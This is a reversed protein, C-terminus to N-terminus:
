KVTQRLCTDGGMKVLKGDKLSEFVRDYRQADVVVYTVHGNLVTTSGVPYYPGSWVWRGDVLGPSTLDAYSGDTHFDRYVWAGLGKVFGLVATGYPQDAKGYTVKIWTADGPGLPAFTWPTTGGCIWEGVFYRSDDPAAPAARPLAVLLVLALAALARARSGIVIM